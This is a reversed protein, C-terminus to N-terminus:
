RLAFADTRPTFSVPLRKVGYAFNSRVREIPGATTLDPLASLLEGLGVCMELEALRWGLCHHPGIGFGLHSTSGSAAFRDLVLRDADPWKDEDRNASHYWVVVKDGRRIPVGRLTVDRTATRRMHLLPPAWRIVEKVANRLLGPDTVLKQKQEPFLSLAWVANSLSYRTSESGAIILAALNTAFLAEERPEGALATALLSVLGNGGRGHRCQALLESAYRDIDRVGNRRDAESPQYDPDDDGAMLQSWGILMPGDAAPVGLLKALVAAVLPTAFESPLDASGRRAFGGILERAKARVFDELQAVRDATL